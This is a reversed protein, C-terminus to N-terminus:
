VLVVMHSTPIKLIRYRFARALMARDPGKLANQLFFLFRKEAKGPLRLLDKLANNERDGSVDARPLM